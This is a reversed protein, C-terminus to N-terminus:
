ITSLSLVLVCWGNMDITANRPLHVLCDTWARVGGDTDLPQRNNALIRVQSLSDFFESKIRFRNVEWDPEVLVAFSHYITSPYLVHQQCCFFYMM